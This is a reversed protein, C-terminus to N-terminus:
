HAKKTEHSAVNKERTKLVLDIAEKPDINGEIKGMVAINETAQGMLIQSKDFAIGAITGLDRFSVADLAKKSKGVRTLKRDILRFAKDRIGTALHKIDQSDIETEAKSVEKRSSVLGRHAMANKVTQVLEPTAGYEEARDRVKRYINMVANRIALNDKYTKDFEFQLGVELSSKYALTKYLEFEQEKSLISM